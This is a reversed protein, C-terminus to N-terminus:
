TGDINIWTDEQYGQLKSDTTNYILDGNEAVLADRETTTYSCLKLPSSNISVRTGATLLLETEAELEPTGAGETILTTVKITDVELTNTVNLNNEVTLDSNMTVAPVITIGSSDSSDITGSLVPNTSEIPGVIKGAVSDILTSSDDAYVSGKVDFIDGPQLASDALAGQASTAADTIGYGALTTPKGTISSFTGDFSSTITINGEADSATSIGTGGLILFSEGSEVIRLASDDAGISISSL